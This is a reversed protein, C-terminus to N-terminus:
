LFQVAAESIEKPLLIIFKLDSLESIERLGREIKAMWGDLSHIHSRQVDLEETPFLLSGGVRGDLM